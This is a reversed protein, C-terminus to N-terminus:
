CKKRGAFVRCALLGAAVSCASTVWVAPLLDFPSKAGLGSRVAAVTAPLLQVSATNLVVFRCMEDTAEASGSLERMRKVAAVGYPTAANGLGLLNACINGAVLGSATEDRSTEPLLRRLIPLLARTLKKTLGSAEMLKQVGSWLCITGAISLTLRVGEQAGSLAAAGVAATSGFVLSCVVSVALMATLLWSLAM